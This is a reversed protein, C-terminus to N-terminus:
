LGEKLDVLVPGAGAGSVTRVSLRCLFDSGAAEGPVRAGFPNDFRETLSPGSPAPSRSGSPPLFLLLAALGAALGLGALAPWPRFAPAAAGELVRRSLDAPAALLPAGAEKLAARLPRFLEEHDSNM